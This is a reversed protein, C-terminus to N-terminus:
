LYHSYFMRAVVLVVAESIGLLILTRLYKEYTDAKNKFHENRTLDRYKWMHGKYEENNFIPIYDRELITGNIMELRDNTVLKRDKLITNIRNIFITPNTFSSKIDNAASECNIGILSEIPTGGMFLNSMKSNVYVIERKENEVLISEHMNEILENLQTSMINYDLTKSM